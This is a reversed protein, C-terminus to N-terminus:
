KGCWAFLKGGENSKGGLTNAGCKRTTDRRMNRPRFGSRLFRRFIVEIRRANRWGQEARQRENGPCDQLLAQYEGIALDDMGAGRLSEALAYRADRDKPYRICLNRAQNILAATTNRWQCFASTLEEAPAQGLAVEKEPKELLIMASGGGSCANKARFGVAEAARCAAKASNWHMLVPSRRNEKYKELVVGFYRDSTIDLTDTDSMGFVFLGGPELIEFLQRLYLTIDFFNFHIFVANAYGKTIGKGALFRLDAFDMQQFEVNAFGRLEEKACELFESSIDLCWVREVLPAVVRAIFGFGSGLDIVRDCANPKLADLLFKSENKKYERIEDLRTEPEPGFDNGVLAYLLTKRDRFEWRAHDAGAREDLAKAVAAGETGSGASTVTGTTATIGSKTALDRRAGDM